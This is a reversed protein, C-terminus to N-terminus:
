TVPKACPRCPSIKILRIHLPLVARLGFLVACSLLAGREEPLYSKRPPPFKFLRKFGLGRTRKVPTRQTSTLHWSARWGRLHLLTRSKQM